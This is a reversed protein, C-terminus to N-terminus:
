KIRMSNIIEIVATRYASFGEDFCEAPDTEEPPLKELLETLIDLRGQKRAPVEADDFGDMYAKGRAQEIEHRIFDKVDQPLAISVTGDGNIRRLWGNVSDNPDTDQEFRADFREEWGKSEPQTPAHCPCKCNKLNGRCCGDDHKLAEKNMTM